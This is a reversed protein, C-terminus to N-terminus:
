LHGLPGLTGGADCRAGDKASAAHEIRYLNGRIKDGSAAALLRSLTLNANARWPDDVWSEYAAPSAWLATVLLPGQETVPVQVEAGICGVKQLSRELVGATKFFEVLTGYDGGRPDLYLVSRLLESARPRETMAASGRPDVCSLM